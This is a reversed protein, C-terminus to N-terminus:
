PVYRGARKLRKESFESVTGSWIQEIQGGIVSSAQTQGASSM